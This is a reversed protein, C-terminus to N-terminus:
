PNRKNWADAARQATSGTVCPSVACSDNECAVMRKRPGGGHWPKITPAAEGCFPCPLLFPTKPGLKIM